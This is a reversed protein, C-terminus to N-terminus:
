AFVVHFHIAFTERIPAADGGAKRPCYEGSISKNLICYLWLLSGLGAASSGEM